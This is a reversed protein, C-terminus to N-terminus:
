KMPLLLRYVSEVAAADIRNAGRGSCRDGGGSRAPVSLNRVRRDQGLTPEM